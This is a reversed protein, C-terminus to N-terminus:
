RYLRVDHFTEGGPTITVYNTSVHYGEKHAKLVYEGPPLNIIQYNGAADTTATRARGGLLQENKVTVTAGPINNPRPTQTDTVKGKILGYPRATVGAPKPNVAKLYAQELSTKSQTGTHQSSIVGREDVVITTPITEIPEETALNYEDLM